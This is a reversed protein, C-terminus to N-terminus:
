GEDLQWAYPEEGTDDPTITMLIWGSAFAAVGIVM